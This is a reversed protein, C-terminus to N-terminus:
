QETGRVTATALGLAPGGTWVCFFATGDTLYHQTDSTDGSTGSVTGDVYNTDAISGIYNKVVAEPLIGTDECKVSTFEILWNRGAPAFRIYGYGAADLRVQSQVRFPNSM